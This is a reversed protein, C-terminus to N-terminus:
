FNFSLNWLRYFEKRYKSAINPMSDFYVINEANFNNASFTYNYSGTEVSKSDIVLFKNHMINYNFNMKIPIHLDIIKKLIYMRKKTNKGDLLIKVKIGKKYINIISNIIKKSSLNYASLLIEKKSNNIYSIIKDEIKFRKNSSFYVVIKPKSFLNFSFFISLFM